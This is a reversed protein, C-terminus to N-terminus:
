YYRQKDLMIVRFEEDRYYNVRHKAHRRLYKGFDLFDEIYSKSKSEDTREARGMIQVVHEPNDGGSANIITNILPFNQGRKNILSSVLVNIKGERFDQNIKRRGDRKHHVYEVKYYGALEAWLYEYLNEVHKHFRCFILIYSRGRSLNFMVRKYIMEHRKENETINLRYEEDYQGPLKVGDKIPIIKIVLNTSYGLEVMEKKTIVYLQEGFFSKINQAKVQHKKLKGMFISGSLALRMVANFTVNMISKCSKNETEDGEDFLVIEYEALVRKFKKINRAVTQVMAITCRNWNLEKAKVWGLEDEPILEPLERKFQEYLDTSKIFIITKAQTAIYLLAMILTKGANTAMNLAGRQFSLGAVMNSLVAEVADYQYGRVDKGGLENPIEYDLPHYNNTNFQINYDKDIIRQVIQPLLGTKFTANETIYQIKGDWGKPMYKRLHWANPHKVAIDDRIRNLVRFDGIM